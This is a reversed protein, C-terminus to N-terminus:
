EQAAKKSSAERERQKQLFASWPQMKWPHMEPVMLGQTVAPDQEVLSKAEAEDKVELIVAGGTDDLFPGAEKMLGKAFLGLLYRGHELLPQEAVSKGELWAPGPRYIVLFTQKMVEPKQEASAATDFVGIALLWTTAFVVGFRM